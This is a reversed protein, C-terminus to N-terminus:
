PIAPQAKKESDFWAGPLHILREVWGSKPLGAEEPSISEVKADYLPGHVHYIMRFLSQAPGLFIDRLFPIMRLLADLNQLPRVTMYLDINGDRLSLKGRGAMDLASARMALSNIHALYGDVGAELQLHKYLMGPGSLDKRKRTLFKPLDALNLAALLKTMTGGELIRGDDVRLRLRGKMGDWWPHGPRIRGQGFWLVHATGGKFLRSADLRRIVESFDGNLGAFGKWRLGGEAEPFLTASLTLTQGLMRASLQRIDVAGNDPLLFYSHVHTISLQAAELRDAELLGAGQQSSAFRVHVGHMSVAGWQVRRFFGRLVWAKASKMAHFDETAHLMRDPLIARDLFESRIDVELPAENFPATIRLSGTFAPAQLLHFNLGLQGSKLRGDGRITPAAGSSEIQTLDIGHASNKGSVSLFYPEGAAKNSGLFHMWAVEHFDLNMRWAGDFVLRAHMRGQPADLPLHYQRALQPFDSDTQLTIKKLQWARQKDERLEMTMDGTLLDHQLHISELKLSGRADWRLSGGTLRVHQGMVDAQWAPAPTLKAVGKGPHEEHLGWRLSFRVTAPSDRWALQPLVGIRRWAQYRGIDIKGGGDIIFVIHEWDRIVVNGHITGAEHPLSAHSAQVRVGHDDMDVSAEVHRLREGSAALPVDADHLRSRIHFHANKLQALGPLRWPSSQAVAIEGELHNIEGRSVGDLWHRWAANGLPKLWPGLMSLNLKGSRLRLHFVGDQWDGNMRLRNAGSSWSLKKWELLSVDRIGEATHLLGEAKIADFALRPRGTIGALQAGKPASLAMQLRWARGAHERQLSVEGSFKGRIRTRWQEPLWHLGHFRANLHLPENANNWALDLSSGPIQVALRRHPGDLHLNLHDLHINFKEYRINLSVDELSIRTSLPTLGAALSRPPIHLDITGQHVSISVPKLHGTLMAWTSLRVALNAHTARVRGDRDAFTVDEASLWTYGAWYWSLHGVHIDQLNMQRKLISELQPRMADLPPAQWYLWAGFVTACLALLLLIRRCAALVPKLKQLM